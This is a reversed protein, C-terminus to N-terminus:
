TVRLRTGLAKKAGRLGPFLGQSRPRALAPFLFFNSGQIKRKGKHRRSHRKRGKQFDIRRAFTRAPLILAEEWVAKRLTHSDNQWM